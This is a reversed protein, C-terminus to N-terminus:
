RASLVVARREAHSDEVSYYPDVRFARWAEFLHHNYVRIIDM